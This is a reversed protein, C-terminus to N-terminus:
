FSFYGAGAALAAASIAIRDGTVTRTLPGPNCGGTVENIATSRFHRACNNCVMDDGEQHYGKRKRYCVDCADFAARVVGDASRMVFFRIQQGAATTYRYFKATDDAFDSAPLTVDTGAGALDTIPQASVNSGSAVLYVLVGGFLVALAAVLLTPSVRAGRRPPAQFQNRRSQDHSHHHKKHKSM